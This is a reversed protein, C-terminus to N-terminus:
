YQEHGHIAKRLQACSNKSAACENDPMWLHSTHRRSASPRLRPCHRARARACACACAAQQTVNSRKPGGDSGPASRVGSLHCRVLERSTPGNSSFGPCALHPRCVPTSVRYSPLPRREWPNCPRRPTGYAVEVFSARLRSKNPRLRPIRSIFRQPEESSSAECPARPKSTLYRKALTYDSSRQSQFFVALVKLAVIALYLTQFSNFPRNSAAPPQRSPRGGERKHLHVPAGDGLHACQITCCLEIAIQAIEYQKRM